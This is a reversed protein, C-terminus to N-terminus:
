LGKLIQIAMDGWFGGDAPNQKHAEESTVLSIQPHSTYAETHLNELNSPGVLIEMRSEALDQLSSNDGYCLSTDFYFKM